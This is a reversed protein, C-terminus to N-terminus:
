LYLRATYTSFIIKSAYLANMMIYTQSNGDTLLHHLFKEAIRRKTRTYIKLLSSKIEM